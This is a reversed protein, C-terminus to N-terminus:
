KEIENGMPVQLAGFFSRTHISGNKATSCHLESMMIKLIAHM